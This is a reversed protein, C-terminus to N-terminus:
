LDRRKLSIYSVFYLLLVFVAALGGLQWLELELIKQKTQAEEMRLIEERVPSPTLTSFINLPFFVYIMPPIIKGAIFDAVPFVIVTVLSMATHRILTVFFLAVSFYCFSQFFFIFIYHSNVYLDVSDSNIFGLVLALLSNYLTVFLSLFVLIALKSFILQKKTMGDIINQKATRYSFENSVIIVLILSVLIHFYSACYFTYKLIEPFEWIQPYNFVFTGPEIGPQPQKLAPFLIGYLFESAVYMFLPVIVMYILLIIKIANLNKLKSYEISLLHRM